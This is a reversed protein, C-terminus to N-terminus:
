SEYRFLVWLIMFEIVRSLPFAVIAGILGFQLVLFYLLGLQIIPYIFRYIYLKRKEMKAILATHLILSPMVPILFIAYIISLSVADMYEPFLLAFAPGALLSYLIFSVVGIIFTLSMKRNMTYRLENMSRSGFRPLALGGISKLIDRIKLPPITAFSYLAVSTAGLLHWVLVKDLHKVITGTVSMLSLHKGFSISKPDGSSNKDVENLTLLLGFLRFIFYGVFNAIVFVITVPYFYAALSIVALYGFQIAADFKQQTAFDKRGHWISTFIDFGSTFPLLFSVVLMSWGIVVEGQILFYVSSGFGVVSGLLGWVIQTRLGQYIVMEHGNAVSKVISTNIGKLTFISLIGALSLVYNYEGYVEKSVFNAFIYAAVFSVFISAFRGTMVWIGGGCVYGVDIKFMRNLWLILDTESAKIKKM